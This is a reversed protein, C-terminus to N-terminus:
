RPTSSSPPRTNCCSPPRLTNWAPSTERRAVVTCPSPAQVHNVHFLDQQHICAAGPDLPQQTGPLFRGAIGQHMTLLHRACHLTQGICATQHHGTDETFVKITFKEPRQRVPVPSLRFEYLGRATAAAHGASIGTGILESDVAQQPHNSAPVPDLAGTQHHIASGGDGQVHHILIPLM